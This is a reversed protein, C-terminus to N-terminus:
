TRVIQVIVPLSLSQEANTIIAERGFYELVAVHEQSSTVSKKKHREGWVAASTIVELVISGVIDSNKINDAKYKLGLNM